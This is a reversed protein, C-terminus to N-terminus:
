QIPNHNYRYLIKRDQGYGGNPRGHEDFRSPMIYQFTSLPIDLKCKMVIPKNETAKVMWSTPFM